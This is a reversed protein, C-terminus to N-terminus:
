LLACAKTAGGGNTLAAPRVGEGQPAFVAVGLAMGLGRAGFVEL